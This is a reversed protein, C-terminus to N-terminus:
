ICKSLDIALEAINAAYDGIRKVSNAILGVSIIADTDLTTAPYKIRRMEEYIRKREEIVVNALEVNCKTFSSVSNNVLKHSVTGIKVLEDLMDFPIKGRSELMMGAIKCAHDSVHELHDSALKCYFSGIFGFESKKPIRSRLLIDMFQKSLLLHLFDIEDDQRMVESAISFDRMKMAKITNELMWQVKIHM